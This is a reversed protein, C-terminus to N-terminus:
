GRNKRTEEKEHDLLAPTPYAYTQVEEAEAGRKVWRLTLLYATLSGGGLVIAILGGLGATNIMWYLFEFLPYELPFNM